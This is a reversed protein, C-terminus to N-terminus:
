VFTTLSRSSPPTEDCITYTIIIDVRQLICKKIMEVDFKEAFM